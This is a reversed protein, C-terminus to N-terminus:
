PEMLLCFFDQAWCRYLGRSLWGCIMAGVSRAGARCDVTKREGWGGDSCSAASEMQPSIGGCAGKVITVAHFPKCILCTKAGHVQKNHILLKIVLKTTLHM